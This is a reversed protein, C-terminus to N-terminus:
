IYKILYDVSARSKVKEDATKNSFVDNWNVLSIARQICVADTNKYDWVESYFPPPLPINLNLSGYIINHHCKDDMTQKVGVDCLLKSNATFLLDICSSKDNMIHTPQGIIQTYGSTTTFTDQGDKIDQDSPCWKLLKANFDGVLISCTPQQNNIGSLVDILNECFSEFQEQNQNPSRYLCTLFCRENNVTIETVICENLKCIDVKRILPLYQKYYICVGGRKTNSAHDARIM